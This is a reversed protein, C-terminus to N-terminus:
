CTSLRMSMKTGCHEIVYQTPACALMIAGQDMTEGAGKTQTQLHYDINSYSFCLYIYILYSKGTM